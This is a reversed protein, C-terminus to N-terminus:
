ELDKEKKWMLIDYGEFIRDSISLGLTKVYEYLEDQIKESDKGDTMKELEVFVGLDFVNDLCIEYEGMKAKRREKKIFIDVQHYGLLELMKTIAVPDEIKTEHEICDLSNLRPQKVTFIYGGDQKRIRFFMAGEQNHRDTYDGDYNCFVTDEQVKPLSLEIGKQKLIEIAQDISNKISVKIEVERNM